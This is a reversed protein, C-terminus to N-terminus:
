KQDAYQWWAITGALGAISTLVLILYSIGSIQMGGAGSSVTLLGPVAWPFYPGLGLLGSFNAMIVTLIVVGLPLMLGSSYSALFAVPTCLLISLLCVNTFLILTESFMEGSWGTVGALLGFIVASTLFVASIIVCWVMIIIMKSFVFSSRPVPLALIDKLTHEMYERGFVWSTVFGFGVLGIGAFSQMLLSFYNMWGTEGDGFLTAKTGIIGLKASVSPHMQVFMMLGMMFAVFMFFLISFWFVKSKRVKLSEAWLSVTLNNM